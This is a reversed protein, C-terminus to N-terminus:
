FSNFKIVFTQKYRGQESNVLYGLRREQERGELTICFWQVEAHKDANEVTDQAVIRGPTRGPVSLVEKLDKLTWLTLAAEPWKKLCWNPIFSDIYRDSCSMLLCLKEWYHLKTKNIWSHTQCAFGGTMWQWAWWGSLQKTEMTVQLLEEQSEKLQLKMSSAWPSCRLETWRQKLLCCSKSIRCSGLSSFSCHKEVGGCFLCLCFM